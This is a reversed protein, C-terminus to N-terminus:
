GSLRKMMVPLVYVSAWTASLLAGILCLSFPRQLIGELDNVFVMPLSALITTFSTLFIAQFRMKGAEKIANEIGLGASKLQKATHIKLIADNVVIGSAAILGLGGMLGMSEGALWLLTVGGFLGFPIMGLVLLPMTFSEFQAILVAYLCTFALLALFLLQTKQKKENLWNGEFQCDLSNQRCLKLIKTRNTKTPAFSELYLSQRTGGNGAAITRYKRKLSYVIVDNLSVEPKGPFHTQLGEQLSPVSASHMWIAIQEGPKQIVSILKSGFTLILLDLTETISVGFQHIRDPLINFEWMDETAALPLKIQIEPFLTQLQKKFQDLVEPEPAINEKRLQLIFPAQQMPLLHEAMSEPKKFTLIADPFDTNLRDMFQHGHVREEFRCVTQYLDFSNKAQPFGGIWSATPFVEPALSLEKLNHHIQDPRLNQRWDILIDVTKEPPQPIWEKPIFISAVCGLIALMLSISVLPFKIKPPHLPQKHPSDSGVKFSIALVPLVLLALVLSCFLSLGIVLAQDTFLAGAVGEQLVMPLFVCVTTLSSALLPTLMTSSAKVSADTHTLGQQRLQSIQDLMIIGNDLLLGLGIVLGALSMLNLSLGLLQMSGLTLLLSAPIMLILIFPRKWGGLVWFLLVAAALGGLILSDRLSKLSMELLGVQNRLMEFQIGPVEKQLIQLLHKVERNTTILNADPRAFCALYIGKKGKNLFSPGTKDLSERVESIDKLYITRGGTSHKLPLNAIEKPSGIQSKLAMSYEYAGKSFRLGGLESKAAELSKAIDDLTIGLTKIKGLDPIIEIIPTAQGFLECRALGSFQEFRAKINKQVLASVTLIDLSDSWVAIEAFALDSSRIERALPRHWERSIKPMLDDIRENVELLVSRTDAGYTLYLKLDGKGATAFSELSELFPISRLQQRLPELLEREIQIGLKNRERIEVVLEAQAADPLLALPLQRLAVASGILVLVCLTYVAIPRNFIYAIM